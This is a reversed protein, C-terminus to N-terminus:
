QNDPSAYNTGWWHYSKGNQEAHPAGGSWSAGYPCSGGEGGCWTDTYLLTGDGKINPLLKTTKYYKAHGDMHAVNNGDAFHGTRLGWFGELGSVNGPWIVGVPPFDIWLVVKAVNTFALDGPGVGEVGEGGPNGSTTSPAPAFYGYLGTCQGGQYGFM